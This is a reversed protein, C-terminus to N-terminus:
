PHRDAPALRAATLATCDAQPQPGPREPSDNRLQGPGCLHVRIGQGVGIEVPKFFQEFGFYELTLRHAEVFDLGHEAGHDASGLRDRRGDPQGFRQALSQRCPAVGIDFGRQFQQHAQVVIEGSRQEVVFGYGGDKIREIFAALGVIVFGPGIGVHRRRRGRAPSQYSSAPL